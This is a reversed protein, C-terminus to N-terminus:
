FKYCVPDHNEKAQSIEIEPFADALKDILFKVVINETHYHGADFVALGYNQADIFQDHKVDGTIYADAGLSLANRFLGGGGGSCVAVRKILKGTNNFRVVKNGFTDKILEALQDPSLPNELECIRGYGKKDIIAENRSLCYAPKEYPHADLMAQIVASRKEHPVIMELRVERVTERVGVKGIYPDAGDLPLFTGTGETYFACGSYDDLTGAGANTMANFVTERSEEPVFVTMQYYAEEYSVELIQSTKKMGLMDIMIDSIGGNFVDLNTHACIASIDNKSLIIAPNNSNLNYLPHYIVPHHSIVLQAGTNVAEVAIDKTIDLSVLIKNVECDRAGVLLGSNDDKSSLSFPAIANIYDYIQGVKIM